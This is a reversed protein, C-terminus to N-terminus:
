KIIEMIENKIKENREHQTESILALYNNIAKKGINQNINIKM